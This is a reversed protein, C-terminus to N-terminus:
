AKRCRATVMEELDILPQLTPPLKRKDIEWTDTSANYLREKIWAKMRMHNVSILEGLRAKRLAEVTADTGEISKVSVDRNLYVTMGNRTIKATGNSRFASVIMGNLAALQENVPRLAAEMEKKAATLRIFEDVAEDTTLSSEIAEAVTAAELESCEDNM